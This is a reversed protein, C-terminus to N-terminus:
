FYFWISQYENPDEGIEALHNLYELIPVDRAVYGSREVVNKEWPHFEYIRAGDPAIGLLTRHQLARVHNKGLRPVNYVVEDTRRSGPLLRAEEKQEQLLRALPVRYEATEDKGKTVFTYYPDIGVRRLLMRLKVTEFRRSVFFTYVLQNYVSIGQRRIRDVAEVLEPTIEYPHEVHTVLCVDRVGPIRYSGLLEALEETIRMPVTVPVRSGIRIMDVHDIAALRDMLSRIREDSMVLPDGGTILVERISRNGAIWDIARGLQEESAMAGPEMPRDIEWNRQCYVCIQPCSNFPKLICIAPYRRTVLEVPSTYHEGMFDFFVERDQRHQVMKEVYSAPPLVQARVARDHGSPEDDMLSAYYPTVGVPLNNENATRIADLREGDLKVVMALEDAGTLVHRVQWKWDFWDKEEGGLVELLRKRRRKRAEVVDADLGSRYRALNKEVWRWIEDLQSSRLLSAREPPVDPPIDDLDYRALKVKAGIGRFINILEAFFGPGLDPRPEGRALDWLAQVISAGSLVDSSKRAMSRLAAICDRRVMLAGPSMSDDCPDLLEMDKEDLWEFLAKRAEELTGCRSLLGFLEGAEVSLTERDYMREPQWNM